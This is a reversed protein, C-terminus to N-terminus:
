GTKREVQQIIKRVLYCTIGRNQAITIIPLANVFYDRLIEMKEDTLSSNQSLATILNNSSIQQAIKKLRRAVTAENVQAVKAISSYKQSSLFLRVFARQQQPLMDVRTSLKKFLGLLEKKRIGQVAM